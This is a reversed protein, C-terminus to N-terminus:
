IKNFYKRRKLFLAIGLIALAIIGAISLFIGTKPNEVTSTDKTEEQEEGTTVDELPDLSNNSTDDDIIPGDIYNKIGSLNHAPNAKVVYTLKYKTPDSVDPTISFSFTNLGDEDDLKKAESGGIIKALEMAYDDFNSPRVVTLNGDYDTYDDLYIYDGYTEGFMLDNYFTHLDVKAFLDDIYANADYPEIGYAKAVIVYGDLLSYGNDYIFYNNYANPGNTIEKNLTFTVSGDDEINYNYTADHYTLTDDTILDEVDIGTYDMEEKCKFYRYTEIRGDVEEVDRTIEVHNADEACALVYKYAEKLDEKTINEAKVLFPLLLVIIGIIIKKKM